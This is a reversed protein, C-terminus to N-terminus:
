RHLMTPASSREAPSITQCVISDTRTSSGSNLRFTHEFHHALVRLCFFLGHRTCFKRYFIGSTKPQNRGHVRTRASVVDAGFSSSNPRGSRVFIGSCFRPFRRSADVNYSIMGTREFFYPCSRGSITGGYRVRTMTPFKSSRKLTYSSDVAISLHGAFHQLYAEGVFLNLATSFPWSRRGKVRAVVADSTERVMASKSLEFMHQGMMTGFRYIIAIQISLIPQRIIGTM